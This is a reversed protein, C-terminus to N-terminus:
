ETEGGPAWPSGTQLAGAQSAEVCLAGNGAAARDIRWVTGALARATSVDPAAVVLACPCTALMEGFAASAAPDMHCTPDDVLILEHSTLMGCALLLARVESPSASSGQLLATSRVGLRSVVSLVYDREEPGLAKIEAVIRRAFDDPVEQLILLVRADRRAQDSLWHLLQTKGAGTGGVIAVHEAPGVFLEPVALVCDEGLPLDCSDFAFGRSDDSAPRAGRWAKAVVPEEAPASAIVERAAAVRADLAASLKGRKGDQGSAVYLRKRARADHDRPDLVGGSRNFEARLADDARRQKERELRDLERRARELRVEDAKQDRQEQLRGARYGGSRMTAYGGDMFLCRDALADLLEADSSVVLGCGHFAELARLVGDRASTDLFATPEDVVLLDPEVALACAVGLLKREGASLADFRWVWDDGIGLARRLGQATRGWDSAFDYANDPLSLVQQGCYALAINGTGFVDGADPGLLGCALKAVTSKGSGAPGVVGTWGLSFSADVHSVANDSTGPYAFSVDRFTVHVAMPLAGIPQISLDVVVRKKAAPSFARLALSVRRRKRFRAPKKSDCRAELRGLPMQAGSQCEMWVGRAYKGAITRLVEKTPFDPLDTPALAAGTICSLGFFVQHHGHVYVLGSRVDWVLSCRGESYPADACWQACLWARRMPFVAAPCQLDVAVARLAVGEIFLM